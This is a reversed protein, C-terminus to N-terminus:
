HRLSENIAEELGDSNKFIFLSKKGDPDQKDPKIDAISYGKRLLQRALQGTFVTIYEKKM